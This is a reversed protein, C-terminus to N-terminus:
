FPLPVILLRSNQQDVIYILNTRPHIAVAGLLSGMLGLNAKVHQDNIDMVSVTSSLSNVTVITSTEFNYAISTPNIGIRTSRLQQTVPDLFILNNGLSSTSIYVKNVPDFVIGAPQDPGSLTAAVTVSGNSLDLLTIQSSSADAVAATQGVPDIAVAVPGSGVATDTATQGAAATASFSSVSNSNGNFNAVFVTGDLPSIAVGTPEIGVSVTQTVAPTNALTVIMANNDGRNSVVALGNAPMTAVGQPNSGVKVTTTVTGTGLDVLALSNCSSETVVALNLIDDIAVASPMPSACGPSTLDVPQVVSFGEINSIVGPLAPNVVDVAFRRASGLLTAPVTVSMQRDTITGITALPFGDARAVMGPLFGKGILTLSLDTPSALTLDTGLQRNIPLVVSELQPSKIPGLTIVILDNNSQDVVLATNSGPDIAVASLNPGGGPLPLQQVVAPTHLPDVRPDLISIPNASKPNIAVAVDTFPNVAVASVGSELVAPPVAKVVPTVTQDLVSMIEYPFQNTPDTLIAQKSEPNVAIGSVATGFAVTALPDSSFVTGGGSTADAGTQTYTFTTFTPVSAVTFIGNFSSDAVGTILVADGDALGHPATTTITVTSTSSVRAAGMASITTSLQKALDVISFTGAGGPTVLGWNLGAMIEVHPNAGTGLTVTGVFENGTTKTFDINNLNLIAGINTSQYAILALGTIPNVGVSFPAAPISTTVTQKARTALNVVTVTKATNSVVVALNRVNDVAVGTPGADVPITGGPVVTPFAGTLDVLTLDNSDHNAVVAIGTATNIAIADPGMGVPVTTGSIVPAVNPQVAVNTAATQQPLIPPQTVAPNTVTVQHLGPVTADVDNLSVGIQRDTFSATSRVSGEFEVNVSPTSGPSSTGFLGGDIRFPPSSSGQVISEPSSSVIAPRFAQVAIQCKSPDPACSVLNGGQREVQITLVTPSASMFDDTVRAHLVNGFSTVPNLVGGLTKGNVFVQTTNLFNTGTLFIDVFASGQAVTTPYVSTATPDSAAVLSVTSSGFQNTDKTSVAEITVPNSAPVTAPGKYNGNVDISGLAGTTDAPCPTATSSSAQCVTWTVTQISTGTVSATFPLTENTGITPSVPAVTVRIGSDVTVTASATATTDANSIATVTVTNPSPVANPATYNGNTDITGHTSDGGTVGDVQWIVTMDTSSTSVTASFAIQGGVAVTASAINLTVTTATTSSTGKNCGAILGLMALCVIWARSRMMGGGGMGVKKIGPMRASRTHNVFADM